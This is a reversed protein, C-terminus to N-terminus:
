QATTTLRTSSRVRAFVEMLSNSRSQPPYRIDHSHGGQVRAFGFLVKFKYSRQSFVWPTNDMDRPKQRRMTAKKGLRAERSAFKLKPV